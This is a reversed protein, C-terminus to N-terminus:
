AAEPSAVELPSGSAQGRLTTRYMRRIQGAASRDVVSNHDAVVKHMTCRNDWILLDGKRWRHRYVFESQTAHETLFRLIPTSEEVTMGHIQAVVAEGIRLSRRGTEPHIYVMPQLVPKTRSIFNQPAKDNRRKYWAGNSIDHIANLGELVRQYAPSLTELAVYMNTFMTDGGYNPVQQAHLVAGASPRLTYTLDTHWQWGVDRTESPKGDATENTLVFIAKHEPHSFASVASDDEITGFAKTFEIHAPVDIDQGRVILVLHALWAQKLEAKQTDTLPKRLDLGVVEAGIHTTLRQIEV